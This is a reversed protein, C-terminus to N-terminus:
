INEGMEIKRLIYDAMHTDRKDKFEHESGRAHDFGLVQNDKVCSFKFGAKEAKKGVIVNDMGFAGDLREDFGGIEKLLKTPCAGWDIEWGNWECKDTHKRWDWKPNTYKETGCQGVPATMFEGGDKYADWFSQLGEPPVKIYDQLSVILEGKARSVLRNMAGNFDPEGTCNIETLWEFDRFKQKLLSERTIELGKPRISLSLVSIKPM